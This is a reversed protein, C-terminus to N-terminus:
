VAMQMKITDHPYYGVLEFDEYLIEEWKKDKIQENLLLKPFPRPNRTIQKKVAEIHNSYIHCDVSNYIIEKPKMDCKLALIYVLIAYSVTNFSVAALAFDSSRMLFYASLYKQGQEETVYFQIFIHCPELVMKHSDKPNMATMYIRRSYPDTKLLNEVHELQDFGGIIETNKNKTQYYKSGFHRWQYGYIPGMQGESYSNLGRNDLFERSTNGTWIKVGKEELIKSNTDGRCFFLLEELVAKFPVRRTTIMPISESIDFRLQNGFIGITGTGTRDSRKGGNELIYKISKLYDNEETKYGKFKKYKLFRISSADSQILSSVSILKYSDDPINIFKNPIVKLKEYIHTIYFNDIEFKSQFSKFIESGGLVYVNLTNKKYLEEFRDFSIYYVDKTLKKDIKCLNTLGKNNTLVFIIANDFKNKYITHLLSNSTVIINRFKSKCNGISVTNKVFESHEQIDFLLDDNKGIALKNKYPSVCAIISITM